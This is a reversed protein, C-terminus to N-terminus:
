VVVPVVTEVRLARGDHLQKGCSLCRVPSVTKRVSAWEVDGLWWLCVEEERSQSCESEM